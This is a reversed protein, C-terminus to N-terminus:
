RVYGLARLWELDQEGLEAAELPTDLTPVPREVVCRPAESGAFAVVASEGPAPLTVTARDASGGQRSVHVSLERSNADLPLYLTVADAALRLTLRAETSPARAEVEPDQHLVIVRAHPDVCFPEDVFGGESRLQVTYDAAPTSGTLTLKFTQLNGDIFKRLALELETAVASSSTQSALNQREAPDAAVDYLAPELPYPGIM